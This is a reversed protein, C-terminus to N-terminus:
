VANPLIAGLLTTGFWLALSAISVARLRLRERAGFAPTQRGARILLGGNGLLAVVLIMKIWFATSQLYADLDALMLLIGSAVVLTLSVIVLRHAAHLREIEFLLTQGGSRLARLTGVDASVAAGGALVLGGIHVFALLSRLTASSSYLASWSEALTHIEAV